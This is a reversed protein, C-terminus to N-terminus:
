RRSKAVKEAEQLKRELEAKDKELQSIRAQKDAALNLLYASLLEKNHDMTTQLDSLRKGLEERDNDYAIQSLDFLDDALNETKFVLAALLVLDQPSASLQHAAQQLDSLVQRRDEIPRRGLPQGAEDRLPLNEDAMESYVADLLGFNTDYGALFNPLNSPTLKEQASLNLPLLVLALLALPLLRRMDVEGLLLGSKVRGNASNAARQPIV